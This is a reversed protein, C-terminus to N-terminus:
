KGLLPPPKLTDAYQQLFYAATQLGTTQVPDLLGRIPEGSRNSPKNLDFAENRELLAHIVHSAWSIGALKAAYSDLKDLALKEDSPQRDPQAPPLVSEHHISSCAHASHDMAVM